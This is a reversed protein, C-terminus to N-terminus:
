KKLIYFQRKTIDGIMFTLLHLFTNQMTMEYVRARMGKSAHSYVANYLDPVGLM